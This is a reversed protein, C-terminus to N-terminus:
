DLNHSLLSLEMGLPLVDVKALTTVRMDVFCKTVKLAHKYLQTGLDSM